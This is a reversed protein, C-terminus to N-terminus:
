GREGNLLYHEINTIRETEVIYEVEEVFEVERIKTLLRDVDENSGATAVAYLDFSGFGRNIFWVEMDSIAKLVQEKSGPENSVRIAIRLIEWDHEEPSLLFFMSTADFIKSVRKRIAEASLSFGKEKLADSIDSYPTRPNEALISLIVHDTEDLSPGSGRSM